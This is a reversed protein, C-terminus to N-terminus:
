PLHLAEAYRIRERDNAKRLSIVRMATGRQRWAFVCLRDNIPAMTVFRAEPYKRFILIRALSAEAAARRM